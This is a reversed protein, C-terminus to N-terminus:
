KLFVSLDIADAMAQNGADNPHVHDGPDIDARLRKPNAPDRVVADFDIVADFAGGKRIWENAAQRVVEGKESYTMVGEIPMITAGAVKIGRAHAREIIQRYGWILDDATVAESAGMGPIASFTIDNIGELLIIWRVGERCLVDREFRALASVGAGDRLVRNGSIGLNLVALPGRGKTKALRQALLTPWARDKDLTTAYGDTISDGFAAIAGASAPALVDVGTLWFYATMTSSPEFSPKDAVNGEGIYNTHLGPQHSTPAGSDGEIYLSVALDAFAPVSLKVPDSVVLAGPPISFSSKGSFTVARDSAPDIAVGKQRVAVHASAIALRPNGASNSLQIRVQSGGISTRVIMRVTQNKIREPLNGFPSPPRRAESRPAGGAPRFAPMASMQQATAWTSVWHTDAACLPVAAALLVASLAAGFKSRRTTTM